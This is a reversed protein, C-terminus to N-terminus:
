RGTALGLFLLRLLMWALELLRFPLLLWSKWRPEERDPGEGAKPFAICMDTRRPEHLLFSEAAPTGRRFPRRPPGVM